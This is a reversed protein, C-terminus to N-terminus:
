ARIYLNPMFHMSAHFFCNRVAGFSTYQRHMGDVTYGNLLIKAAKKANKNSVRSSRHATHRSVSKHRPRVKGEKVRHIFEKLHSVARRRKHEKFLTVAMREDGKSQHLALQADLYDLDTYGM